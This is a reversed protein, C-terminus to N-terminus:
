EPQGEAGPKSQRQTEDQRYNASPLRMLSALCLEAFHILDKADVHYLMMITACPVCIAVTGGVFWEITSCVRTM